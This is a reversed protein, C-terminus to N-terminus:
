GEERKGGEGTPLDGEGIVATTTTVGGVGSGAEVGPKVVVVVAAAGTTDSVVGVGSDVPSEAADDVVIEPGANKNPPTLGAVVIVGGSAGLEARTLPPAPTTPLELGDDLDAVGTKPTLAVVDECTAAAAAAFGGTAATPGVDDGKAKPPEVAVAKVVVVVISFPGDIPPNLKPAAGM